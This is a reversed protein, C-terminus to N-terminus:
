KAELNRIRTEILEIASILQEKGEELEGIKAEKLALEQNAGELYYLLDSYKSELDSYKSELDEQDNELVDNEDKLTDITASLKAIEDEQSLDSLHEPAALALVTEYRLFPRMDNALFRDNNLEDSLEIARAHREEPNM